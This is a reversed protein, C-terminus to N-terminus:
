LATNLQGVATRLSDLSRNLPGIQETLNKAADAAKQLPDAKPVRAPEFGTVATKLKETAKAVKTIKQPDANRMANNIRNVASAVPKMQEQNIDKIAESIKKVGTAAKTAANESPLKRFERNFAPAARNFKQLEPTLAELKGRLAELNAGDGVATIGGAAAAQAKKVDGYKQPRPLLSGDQTALITRNDGRSKTFMGSIFAQTAQQATRLNLALALLIAPIALAIFAALLYQWWSDDEKFKEYAASFGGLGAAEMWETPKEKTLEKHMDDFKKFYPAFLTTMWEQTTVKPSEDVLHKKLDVLFGKAETGSKKDAPTIAFLADKLAAIEKSLDAITEAM